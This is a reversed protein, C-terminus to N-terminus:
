RKAGVVLRSAVMTGSERFSGPPLSEVRAGIQGLWSRFQVSPKDASIFAHEGMIAALRGGPALMDWARIVHRVDKGGSFPPNMLVVSIPARAVPSWTLFDANWIGCGCMGLLINRLGTVLQSDLEVATIFCGREIPEALLMGMGASPELVHDGATLGVADWMLEAIARPTFFQELTKKQDRAFGDSLADSLLDAAPQAFVHGRQRRDWRGGLAKLAKDVADYLRRDLQGAPLRVVNGEATSRSLVEAVEASLAVGRHRVNAAAGARAPAGMEDIM